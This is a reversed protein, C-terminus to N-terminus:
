LVCCLLACGFERNESSSSASHVSVSRLRNSRAELNKSLCDHYFAGGGCVEGERGGLDTSIRREGFWIVGV